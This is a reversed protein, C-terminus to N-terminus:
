KKVVKEFYIIENNLRILITYLGSTLNDVDLKTVRGLIDKHRILQGFQNVLHVEDGQKAIVTLESSLPNPYVKFLKGTELSLSEHALKTEKSNGDILAGGGSCLLSDNYSYAGVHRLLARAHATAWRGDYPCLDAIEELKDIQNSTWTTDPNLM